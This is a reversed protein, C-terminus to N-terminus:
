EMVNGPRGGRDGTERGAAPVVGRFFPRLPTYREVNRMFTFSSAAKPLHAPASSDASFLRRLQIGSPNGV